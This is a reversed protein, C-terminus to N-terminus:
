FAGGEMRPLTDHRRHRSRFGVEHPMSPPLPPVSTPFYTPLFQAYHYICVEIEDRSPSGDCEAGSALGLREATQRLWSRRFTEGTRAEARRLKKYELEKAGDYDLMFKIARMELALDAPEADVVMKCFDVITVEDDDGAFRNILCSFFPDLTM